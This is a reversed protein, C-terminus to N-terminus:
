GVLVAFYPVFSSSEAFNKVVIFIPQYTWGPLSRQYALCCDRHDIKIIIQLVMDKLIKGEFILPEYYIIVCLINLLDSSNLYINRYITDQIYIVLNNHLVSLICSAKKRDFLRNAFSFLIGIRRMRLMIEYRPSSVISNIYWSIYPKRNLWFLDLDEEVNVALEIFWKWVLFVEMAYFFAFITYSDKKLSIWRFFLRSRPTYYAFRNIWKSVSSDSRLLYTFHVSLDMYKPNYSSFKSIYYSLPTVIPITSSGSWESFKTLEHIDASWFIFFM